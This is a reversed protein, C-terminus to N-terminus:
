VNQVLFVSGQAHTPQPGPVAGRRCWGGSCNGAVGWRGGPLAPYPSYLLTASTPHVDQACPVNFRDGSHQGFKRIM